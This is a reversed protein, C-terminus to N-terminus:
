KKIVMQYPDIEKFDNRKLSSPGVTTSVFAGKAKKTKKVYFTNLNDEGPLRFEQRPAIKNFHVLTAENKIVKTKFTKEERGNRNSHRLNLDIERM